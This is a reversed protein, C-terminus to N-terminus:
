QKKQEQKKKQLRWMLWTSRLAIHAADHEPDHDHEPCNISRAYERWESQHIGFAKMAARHSYRAHLEGAVGAFYSSIDRVAKYKNFLTSPTVCRKPHRQDYLTSLYYYLWAFDFSATDAVLTANPFSRCEDVLESVARTAPLAAGTHLMTCIQYYQDRNANQNWFEAVTHPDWSRARDPPHMFWKRTRMLVPPECIENTQANRRLRVVALGACPVFHKTLSPGTAEFDIFCLHEDVVQHPAALSQLEVAVSGDAVFDNNAVCNMQETSESEAMTRALRRCDMQTRALFCLLRTSKPQRLKAFNM